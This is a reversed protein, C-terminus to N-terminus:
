YSSFCNWIRLYLSTGGCPRLMNSFKQNERSVSHVLLEDSDKSDKASHPRSKSVSRKRKPTSFGVPKENSEKVDMQQKKPTSKLSEGLNEQNDLNIERLLGLVDDDKGTNVSVSTAKQKRGTKKAARSKLIQVIKGLPIENGFEDTEDILMKDTPSEVQLVYFLAPTLTWRVISTSDYYACNSIYTVRLVDDSYPAEPPTIRTIECFCNALLVKVDEDQHKLLEKRAVANLCPQIAEM